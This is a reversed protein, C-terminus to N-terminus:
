AYKMGRGRGYHRIAVLQEFHECKEDDHLLSQLVGKKGHCYRSQEFEEYKACKWCKRTEVWSRFGGEFERINLERIEKIMQELKDTYKLVEKAILKKIINEVALQCTNPLEHYDNFIEEVASILINFEQASEGM